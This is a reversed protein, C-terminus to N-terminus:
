GDIEDVDCVQDQQDIEEMEKKIKEQFAAFDFNKLFNEMEEKLKATAEAMSVGNEDKIREAKEERYKEVAEKPNERKAYAKLAVLFEDEEYHFPDGLVSFFNFMLQGFRWDPFSERWVEGIETLFPAIRNPDRM